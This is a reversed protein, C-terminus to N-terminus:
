CAYGAAVDQAALDVIVHAPLVFNLTYAENADVVMSENIQILKNNCNCSCINLDKTNKM